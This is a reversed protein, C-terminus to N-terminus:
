ICIIIFILKMIVLREIMGISFPFKLLKKNIIIKRMLLLCDAKKEIEAKQEAVEKKAQEDLKKTEEETNATGINKTPEANVTLGAEKAKNAVETLGEDVVVTKSENTTATTPATTPATTTPVTVEDASAGNAGLFVAGLAIGCVLGISTKRFYGHGKVNETKKM